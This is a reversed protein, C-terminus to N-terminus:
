VSKKSLVGLQAAAEYPDDLGPVPHPSTTPETFRFRMPRKYPRWRTRLYGAGPTTPPIADADPSNIVTESDTATNTRLAIRFDFASPHYPGDAHPSNQCAWLYIGFDRLTGLPDNLTPLSANDVVVVLDAINAAHGAARLQDLTNVGHHELITRRNSITDAIVDGAADDDPRHQYTVAIDDLNAIPHAFTFPMGTTVILYKTPHAPRAGAIMAGIGCTKGSGDSGVVLYNLDIAEHLPTRHESMGFNTINPTDLAPLTPDLPPRASTENDLDDLRRLDDMSVIGAVPVNDRLIIQRRGAEAMAVYRAPNRNLASASLIDNEDLLM